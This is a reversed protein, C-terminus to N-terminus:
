SREKWGRLSHSVTSPDYALLRELLLSALALSPVIAVGAVNGAADEASVACETVLGSSADWPSHPILTGARKGPNANM